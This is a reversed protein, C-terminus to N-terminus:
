VTKLSILAERLSKGDSQIELTQPCSRILGQFGRYELKLLLFRLKKRIKLREIPDTM